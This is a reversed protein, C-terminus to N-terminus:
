LNQHKLCPLRSYVSNLRQAMMAERLFTRFVSDQWQGVRTGLECACLAFVFLLVSYLKLLYTCHMKVCLM